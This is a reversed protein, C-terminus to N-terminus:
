GPREPLALVVLSLRATCPRLLRSWRCSATLLLICCLAGLAAAGPATASASAGGGSAALPAQHPPPSEAPRPPPPEHAGLYAITPATLCATACVGTAPNAPFVEGAVRFVQAPPSVGVEPLDVRTLLGAVGGDGATHALTGPTAPAPPQAIGTALRGAPEEATASGEALLVLGPGGS